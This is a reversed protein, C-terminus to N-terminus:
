GRRACSEIQAPPFSSSLWGIAADTQLRNNPKASLFDHNIPEQVPPYGEGLERMDEEALHGFVRTRSCIGTRLEEAPGFAYVLYRKGVEFRMDEALTLIQGDRESATTYVVAVEATGGKWWREVKFRTILAGGHLREPSNSAPLDRYEQSIAEGYFVATAGELVVRAPPPPLCLISVPPTAAPPPLLLIAIFILVYM